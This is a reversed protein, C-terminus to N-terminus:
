GGGIYDIGYAEVTGQAKIDSIVVAGQTHTDSVAEGAGLVLLSM